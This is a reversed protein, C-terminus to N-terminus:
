TMRAIIPNDRRTVDSFLAMQAITPNDRRSVEDFIPYSISPNDRRSVEDFFAYSIVPNDYRELISGTHVYSYTQIYNGGDGGEYEVTVVYGVGSTLSPSVPFIFDTLQASATLGNVDVLQSTGLPAGSPKGANELYVKSYASGTPVNTKFLYWKTKGLYLSGTPTVKMGYGTNVGSHLVPYANQTGDWYFQLVYRAM